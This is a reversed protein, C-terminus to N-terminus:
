PRTFLRPATEFLLAYCSQGKMSFRHSVDKKNTVKTVYTFLSFHNNAFQRKFHYQVVLDFFDIDTVYNVPLRFVQKNPVLLIWPWDYGRMMLIFDHIPSLRM